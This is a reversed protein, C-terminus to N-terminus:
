PRGSPREKEGEEAAVHHYEKPKPGFVVGGGVWLPSTSSKRGKGQRNGEAELAEQRRRSVEGRTKTSSTGRRRNTLQMVVVDHILYPKVTPM